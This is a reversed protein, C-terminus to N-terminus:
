AIAAEPSTRTRGLPGGGKGSRDHVPRESWRQESDTDRFYANGSRLAEVDHRLRATAVEAESLPAKWLERQISSRSAEAGKVALM